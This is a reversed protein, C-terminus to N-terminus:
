FVHYVIYSYIMDPIIKIFTPLWTKLTYSVLNVITDGLSAIYDFTSTTNDDNFTAENKGTEKTITYSDIHKVNQEGNEDVDDSLIYADLTLKGGDISICNFCGGINKTSCSSFDKGNWYYGDEQSVAVEILSTPMYNDALFKRFEYRKSGATGALVYTTGDENYENGYITKTRLYMHDHGSFVIDVNCEDYVKALKDQLSLADPWKADKGLSYPSKHMFVIKWDKDTSNLDNQVWDLQAQSIAGMDNTNLVAFHANGYDYSYNVGNLNQVSESKDLAFMNEFWHWVGFGDHNGSVPVLTNQRNLGDFAQAYYDWEENDSDDTFDGLNTYFDANPMMSYATELVKAGNQFRRLSGAQVDAIAIFNVKDDGDDTTFTGEESWNKGDGVKYTYTKGPLLNTVVMQHMYNGEFEECVSDKIKVALETGDTAAIQIRNKSETKTYWTFGRTTATDGNVTVTTRTIDATTDEAFAPIFTASIVLLVSLIISTLRKMNKM